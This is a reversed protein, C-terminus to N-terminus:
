RRLSVRGLRPAAPTMAGRDWGDADESVLERVRDRWFIHAFWTAMVLDQRLLKTPVDPRWASMQAWWEELAPHCRDIHEADAPIIVKRQIFSSAIAGVGITPDFKRGGTHHELIRFGHERGMEEVREDRSLGKQLTNSEFIVHSPHYRVCHDALLLYIEEMRSLGKRWTADIPMLAHRNWAATLIATGGSLAPDVATVVGWSADDPRTLARHERSASLCAKMDDLRFTADVRARPSQVYNRFWVDEGVVARKFSWDETSYLSPFLSEGDRIAPITVIDLLDRLGPEEMVAEWIDGIDVRNGLMIVAVNANASPSTARTFYTQRLVKLIRETSNISEIDQIDDILLMDARIGQAKSYFGRGRMTAGRETSTRGQVVFGNASWEGDRTEPKFPGYRAILEAYAQDNTLQGKIRGIVDKAFTDSQHVYTIRINPDRCIRFTSYDEVTTTKGSEPPALILTIRRPRANSIAEAIMLHGPDSDRHLYRKRWPGFAALGGKEIAAIQSATGAAWDARLQEMAQTFGPVKSRWQRYTAPAIAAKACARNVDFGERPWHHLFKRRNEEGIALLGSNHDVPREPRYGGREPRPAFDVPQLAEPREAETPDEAPPPAVTSRDSVVDEPRVRDYSKAAVKKTTPELVM